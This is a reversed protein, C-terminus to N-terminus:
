AVVFAAVDNLLAMRISSSGRERRLLSPRKDADSRSPLSGQAIEKNATIIHLRMYSNLSTQHHYPSLM